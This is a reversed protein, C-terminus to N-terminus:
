EGEFLSFLGNLDFCSGLHTFGSYDVSRELKDLSFDDQRCFPVVKEQDLLAALYEQEYQGPTPIFFAKKGLKALDMITTYGSRSLILTSSNFAKELQGSNMYNYVVMNNQKYMCQQKGIQGRVFLVKGKFEPLRDMLIDELMSRQPEPGSLVVMLDYCAPVERKRLRSLPGIYVLNAAGNKMHGLRGSLNPEQEFDPVWCQDFRRIIRQHMKSSIWTTNGSLVNLQHTIIVSPVLTSCVGLRNDSIIGKLDLEGVLRATLAREKRVAAMIKHSDLMMRWKFYRAKEAYRIHYSPLEHSDLHPFELRLLQLAAGDSALVPEYGAKELQKIVPICRTAHGLGWNLPAVLIRKKMKM